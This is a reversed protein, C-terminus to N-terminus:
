VHYLWREPNEPANSGCAGPDMHNGYFSRSALSCHSSLPPSLCFPHPLFASARVCLCMSVHICGSVCVYLWSWVVVCVTGASEVVIAVGVVVARAVVVVLLVWVLLNRSHRLAM